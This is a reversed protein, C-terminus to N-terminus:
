ISIADNFLGCIFYYAILFLYFTPINVLKIQFEYFRLKGHYIFGKQHDNM